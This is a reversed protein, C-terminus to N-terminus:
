RLSRYDDLFRALHYLGIIFGVAAGTIIGWLFFRDDTVYSVILAIWMFALPLLVLIFQLHRKRLFMARELVESVSMEALDIGKIGRYLWLDMLSATMFYVCGLAVIWVKGEEPFIHGLSLLPTYVLMMLSLLAFRRYRQALSQLATFRRLNSIDSSNSNTRIKASRWDNETAM